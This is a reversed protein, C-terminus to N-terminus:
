EVLVVNIIEPVHQKITAEVGNVLTMKNISCNTCAGLFRISVTQNIVSVLDVDGGDKILYPRIEVLAKEIKSKLLDNEM